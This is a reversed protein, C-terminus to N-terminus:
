PWWTELQVGRYHGFDRVNRTVVVMGKTAAIAVIQADLTGSTIGKKRLRANEDAVWRAADRDFSIVRMAATIAGFGTELARKRAGGPLVAIGFALEYYAPAALSCRKAHLRFKEAVVLDPRERLLESIVNADLLYKM